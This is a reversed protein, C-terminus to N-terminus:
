EGLVHGNFVYVSSVDSSTLAATVHKRMALEMEIENFHMQM